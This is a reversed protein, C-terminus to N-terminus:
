YLLYNDIGIIKNRDKFLLVIDSSLTGIQFGQTGERLTVFFPNCWSGDENQIIAIGKGGQPNYAGAAVRCAGPFIVIGESQNILSQPISGTPDELVNDLARAAEELTKVAKEIEVSKNEEHSSEARM